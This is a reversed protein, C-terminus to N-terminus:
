NYRRRHEKTEPLKTKGVPAHDNHSSKDGKVRKNFENEDNVLVGFEKALAAVFTFQKKESQIIAYLV